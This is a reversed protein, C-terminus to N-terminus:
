WSLVATVGWTLNERQQRQPLHAGRNKKKGWRFIIPPLLVCTLEQDRARVISTCLIAVAGYNTLM